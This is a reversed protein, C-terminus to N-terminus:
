GFLKRAAKAPAGATAAGTAAGKAKMRTKGTNKEAWQDRFVPEEVEAIIEAVTLGSEAHFLKDIDNEERTEGGPVYVGQDNKVNKDVVQKVVGILIPKGVIETIVQVKTPVEAKVDFDYLKITKEEPEVDSLEIGGALLCMANGINFGPLYQEDGNKDTYTHKGGKADGSTIWQTNRMSEGSASKLHVTLSNAGGKSKGLFAMEINFEVLGSELIRSGGLSDREAKIATSTKLKNLFSL